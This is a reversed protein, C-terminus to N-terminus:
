VPAGRPIPGPLDTSRAGAVAVQATPAAAASAAAAAHAARVRAASGAFPVATGQATWGPATTSRLEAVHSALLMTGRNSTMTDM